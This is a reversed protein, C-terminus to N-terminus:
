EKINGNKDFKLRFVEALKPIGCDKIGYNEAAQDIIFKITNEIAKECATKSLEDLQYIEKKLEKAEVLGDKILHYVVDPIDTCDCGCDMADDPMVISIDGDCRQILTTAYKDERIYECIDRKVDIIERKFGYSKLSKENLFEKKIRM